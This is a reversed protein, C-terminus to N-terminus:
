IYAINRDTLISSWNLEYEHYPATHLMMMRTFEETRQEDFRLDIGKMHELLSFLDEVASEIDM